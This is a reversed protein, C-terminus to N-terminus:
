HGRMRGSLMQRGNREGEPIELLHEIYAAVDWPNRFGRDRLVMVDEDTFLKQQGETLYMRVRSVFWERFEEDTTQKM